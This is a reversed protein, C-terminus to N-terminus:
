IKREKIKLRLSKLSHCQCALCKPKTKPFWINSDLIWKVKSLILKERSKEWRSKSRMWARELSRHTLSTRWLTRTWEVQSSHTLAEVALVEKWPTKNFLSWKKWSMSRVALMLPLQNPTRTFYSWKMSSNTSPRWWKSCWEEIRTSCMRSSTELARQDLRAKTWWIVFLTELRNKTKRLFMLKAIWWKLKDTCWVKHFKTPMRLRFSIKGWRMSLPEWKKSKTRPWRKWSLNSSDLWVQQLLQLSTCTNLLSLRQSMDRESKRPWRMQTVKQCRSLQNFAM